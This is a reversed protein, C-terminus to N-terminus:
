RRSIQRYNAWGFGFTGGGFSLANVASTIPSIFSYNIPVDLTANSAFSAMGVEDNTNSFYNIFSTVATPLAASGGNNKMSGSRDLALSMVLKGRLAQASNSVTLTSFGPVLGMFITKVTTTATVNVVLNGYFYQYRFGCESCCPTLHHSFIITTNNTWVWLRVQQLVLKEGGNDRLHSMNM